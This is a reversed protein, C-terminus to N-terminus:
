KFDLKKKKEELELTTKQNNEIDSKLKTISQILDQKKAVQGLIQTYEQFKLNVQSYEKQIKEVFAQFEQTDKINDFDKEENNIFYKLM